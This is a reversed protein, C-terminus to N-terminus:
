RGDLQQNLKRRRRELYDQAQRSARVAHPEGTRPVLLERTTTADVDAPAIAREDIGDLDDVADAPRLAREVQDLVRRVTRFPFTAPVPTATMTTQGPHTPSTAAM